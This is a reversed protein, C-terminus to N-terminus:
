RTTLHRSSLPHSALPPSRPSPVRQHQPASVASMESHTAPTGLVSEDANRNWSLSTPATTSALGRNNPPQAMSPGQPGASRQQAFVKTRTIVSGEPHQPALPTQPSDKKPAQRNSGYLNPSPLDGAQKKVRITSLNRHSEEDHQKQKRRRKRSTIWLSM